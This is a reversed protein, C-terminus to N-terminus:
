VGKYMVIIPSELRGLEFAKSRFGFIGAQDLLEVSLKKTDKGVVQHKSPVLRKTDSVLWFTNVISGKLNPVVIEGAKKAEEDLQNRLKLFIDDDIGIKALHQAMYGALM